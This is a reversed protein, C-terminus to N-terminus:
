SGYKDLLAKKNESNKAMIEEKKKKVLLATATPTAEPHNELLHKLMQQEDENSPKATQRANWAFQKMKEYEVAEGDFHRVFLNRENYEGASPDIISRTKPNYTLKKIRGKVVNTDEGEDEVQEQATVSELYGARDELLRIIKEGPAKQGKQKMTNQPKEDGLLGLEALELAEEEEESNMEKAEGQKLAKEKEADRYRQINNDWDKVDYGYYNDRKADYNNLVEEDRVEITDQPATNTSSDERYKFSVKRQRELCDSKKHSMSGCNSCKIKKNNKFMLLKKKKKKVESNEHDNSRKAMLVNKDSIRTHSDNIGEGRSAISFNKPKENRNKRQHALYDKDDDKDQEDRNNSKDRSSVPVKDISLNETQYWPASAIFEPIYKNKTNDKALRARSM